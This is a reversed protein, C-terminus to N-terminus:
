IYTTYWMRALNIGHIKGIWNLVNYKLVSKISSVYQFENSGLCRKPVSFNRKEYIRM